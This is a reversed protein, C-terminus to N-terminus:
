TKEEGQTMMGLFNSLGFKQKAKGKALVYIYTQEETQKVMEGDKGEVLITDGNEAKVPISELKALLSIDMKSYTSEAIKSNMEAIEEASTKGEYEKKIKDSDEKSLMDALHQSMESIKTTLMKQTQPSALQKTVMGMISAGMGGGGEGSLMKGIDLGPFM